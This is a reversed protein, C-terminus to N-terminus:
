NVRGHKWDFSSTYGGGSVVYSVGLHDVVEMKGSGTNLGNDFGM